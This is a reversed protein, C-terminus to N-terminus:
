LLRNSTDVIHTDLLLGTRVGEPNPLKVTSGTRSASERVVRVLRRGLGRDSYRPVGPTKSVHRTPGLTAESSSSKGNRSRRQPLSSTM